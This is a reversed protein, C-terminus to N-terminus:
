SEKAAEYVTAGDIDKDTRHYIAKEGDAPEGTMLEAELQEPGDVVNIRLTLPLGLPVPRKMRRADLIGGMFIIEAAM